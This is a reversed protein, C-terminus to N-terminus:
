HLLQQSACAALFRVVQPSHEYCGKESEPSACGPHLLDNQCDLAPLLLALLQVTTPCCWRAVDWLMEYMQHLVL